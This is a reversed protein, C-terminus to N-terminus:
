LDCPWKSFRLVEQRRSVAHPDGDDERMGLSARAHLADSPIEGIKQTRAVVRGENPEGNVPARAAARNV